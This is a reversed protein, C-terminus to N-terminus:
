WPRGASALLKTVSARCAGGGFSKSRRRRYTLLKARLLFAVGIVAVGVVAAVRV